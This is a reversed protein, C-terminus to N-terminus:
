RTQEDLALRRFRRVGDDIAWDHGWQMLPRAVRSAARLLPDRLEVNWSVRAECGGPHDALDLRAPGAIDGSVRADVLREPVVEILAVDFRLSYPVPGRVECHSVTGQVLGDSDLTRLWPWWERLRNPRSLAEWLDRPVVGFVWRRDLRFTM